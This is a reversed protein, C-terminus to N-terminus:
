DIVHGAGYAALDDIAEDVHQIRHTRDVRKEDSNDLHIAVTCVSVLSQM